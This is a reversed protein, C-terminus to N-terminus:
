LCYESAAASLAFSLLSFENSKWNREAETLLQFGIRQWYMGNRTAIQNMNSDSVPRKVRQSPGNQMELRYM